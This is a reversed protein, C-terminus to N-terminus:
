KSTRSRQQTIIRDKAENYVAQPIIGRKVLDFKANYPRGDIIKQAYADKQLGPVNRLQELTASNIDIKEIGKQTTQTATAGGKHQASNGPKQSFAPACIIALAFLVSALVRKM